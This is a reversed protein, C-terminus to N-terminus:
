PTAPPRANGTQLGDLEKREAASLGPLQVAELILQGAGVISQWNDRLEQDDAQAKLLSAHGHAASCALFFKERVNKELYLCNNEWWAQCEMVVPEVRDSHMARVLKRWHAFAEQHAHMRRDVAALRLQHWAKLEELLLAYQSRVREIEDTVGAIDEKTALNKGKEGLYGPLFYKLLLSVIGGAIALAVAAALGYRLLLPVILSIDEPTM